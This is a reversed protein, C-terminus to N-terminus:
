FFFLIFFLMTAGYIADLLANLFPGSTDKFNKAGTLHLAPCFTLLKSYFDTM